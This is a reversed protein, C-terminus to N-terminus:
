GKKREGESPPACWSWRKGKGSYARALGEAVLRTGVSSGDRTYVDAVIRGYKDTTPTLRLLVLVGAPLMEQLRSFARLGLAREEPCREGRIEPTDIRAIRIRTRVLISPWAAVVVDLTDGDVVKQIHALYLSAQDERQEREEAQLMPIAIPGSPFYASRPECPGLMLLAVVFMFVLMWGILWHGLGFSAGTKRM